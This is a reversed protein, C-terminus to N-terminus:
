TNFILKTKGGRLLLFETLLSVKEFYLTYCVM